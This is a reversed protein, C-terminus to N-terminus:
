GALGAKIRLNEWRALRDAYRRDRKTAFSARPPKITTHLSRWLPMPLGQNGSPLPAFTSATTPKKLNRLSLSNALRQPGNRDSIMARSGAVSMPRGTNLFPQSRSGKIPSTPVEAWGEDRTRRRAQTVSADDDDDYDIKAFMASEATFPRSAAPPRTPGEYEMLPDDSHILEMQAKKKQAAKVRKDVEDKADEIMLEKALQTMRAEADRSQCTGCVSRKCGGRSFFTLGCNPCQMTKGERALSVWEHDDDRKNSRPVAMQFGASKAAATNSRRRRGHSTVARGKKLIPEGRIAALREFPAMVRSQMPCQKLQVDASQDM